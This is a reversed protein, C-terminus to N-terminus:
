RLVGALVGGLGALILFVPWITGWSLNFLFVLAVTVLVLGGVLSGRAAATLRGENRQYDRWANGLSVIAPILIFVAWWNDIRIGTINRVLFVVGILILIAGGAWPASGRRHPRGVIPREDVPQVSPGTEGSM